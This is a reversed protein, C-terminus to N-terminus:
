RLSPILNEKKQTVVTSPPNIKILKLRVAQNLVITLISHIYHVTNPHKTNYLKNYFRQIQLSNLNVLKIGGLIPNIHNTIMSAYRKVTCSKVNNKKSKM